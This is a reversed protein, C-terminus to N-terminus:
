SHKVALGSVIAIDNRMLYGVTTSAGVAPNRGCDSWAGWFGTEELEWCLTGTTIDHAAATGLANLMASLAMDGAATTIVHNYTTGTNSVDQTDVGAAPTTQNVNYFSIADCLISDTGESMTVTITHAGATGNTLVYWATGFDAGDARTITSSAVLSFAGDVSSSVGSVTATGALGDIWQVCAFIARDANSGVTITCVGTTGDDSDWAADSSVADFAVDGGGAAAPVFEGGSNFLTIHSRRTM